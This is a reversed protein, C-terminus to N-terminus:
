PGFLLLWTACTLLLGLAPYVLLLPGLHPELRTAALLWRSLSALVIGIALSLVWAPFYSGYFNLIPDCGTTLLGALAAMM